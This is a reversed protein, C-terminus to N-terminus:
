NHMYNIKLQKSYSLADENHIPFFIEDSNYEKSSLARQSLEVRFANLNKKIARVKNTRVQFNQTLSTENLRNNSIQM